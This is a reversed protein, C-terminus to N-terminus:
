YIRLLELASQALEPRGLAVCVSAAIVGVAILAVALLKLLDQARLAGQQLPEGSLYAGAAYFEEGLLAHDCSAYFFPLQSEADTGAIQVAGAAAGVETLLLSEAMFQGMYFCAGPKERAMLGDVAAVYSFQDQSVFFNIGACASACLGARAYAKEVMGRCIGQVVPDYHPVLLKVGSVACKYAIEGLISVAAATAMTSAQGVGPVFLVPRGSAAAKQVAAEMADMEPLRRVRVKNKGARYVAALFVAAILIVLALNNLRADNLWPGPAVAVCLSVTSYNPM